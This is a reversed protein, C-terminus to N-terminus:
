GSAATGSAPSSSTSRTSSSAAARGDPRQIKECPTCSPPTTAAASSRPSRRTATTPSSASCTCASRAPPSSRGAGARAASTRSRDLRVDQRDRRPDAAPHDGPAHDAPLLDSLVESPSRRPSSPGTAPQLLRRRPHARGRARPRQRSINSPSSASCRPRPHRRPARIRGEQPPHRPPDRVRAAPHRHHPGVRLPQAPPGRHHRDVEAAPRLLHRDPQGRGHLDNFTHFFEEQLQETRELFQIDDVLLVDVERYRRKFGPMHKSRMADVFENM